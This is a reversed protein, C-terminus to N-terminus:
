VNEALCRLEKIKQKTDEARFLASGAVFENAGAKSAVAITDEAIGGDVQIDININRKECEQKLATVKSMMDPMFKQGGFGPEVTMILVKDIDPLYPYVKEIDTGPKVVLGVKCGNSKIKDITEKVPSDAEIHFTIIDAGAKIFMDAYDLPKSIMFHVDFPLKTYKRISEVIMSGMSLNPVFHGDMVDIHILDAGSKEMRVIEEGLKSFDSSLISPAIKIM